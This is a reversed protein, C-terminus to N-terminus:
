QLNTNPERNLSSSQVNSNVMHLVNKFGDTLQSQTMVEGVVKVLLECISSDDLHSVLLDIVKFDDSVV